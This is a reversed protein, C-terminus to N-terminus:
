HAKLPERQQSPLYGSGKPKKSKTRLGTIPWIVTNELPANEIAIYPGLTKNKQLSQALGTHM